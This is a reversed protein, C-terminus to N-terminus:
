LASSEPRPEPPEEMLRAFTWDPGFFNRLAKEVGRPPKAFWGRECRNLCERPIKLRDALERQSLGQKMRLLQLNTM